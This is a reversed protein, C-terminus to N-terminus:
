VNFVSKFNIPYVWAFYFHFQAYCCLVKWPDLCIDIAAEFSGDTSISSETKLDGLRASVSLQIQIGFIRRM